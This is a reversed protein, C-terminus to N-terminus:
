AHPSEESSEKSSRRDSPKKSPPKKPPPKMLQLIREAIREMAREDGLREAAVRFTELQRQRESGGTLLPLAAEALREPRVDGQYLEPCVGDDALLNPLASYKASSLLRAAAYSVASLRYAAAFPTELLAAELTVTGSKALAADAARLLEWSRGRLVPVEPPFRRLLPKPLSRPVAAACQLGPVRERLLRAAGIMAGGLSELEKVRSGPLLALLPADPEVGVRRKAEAQPIAKTEALEGVLPHGAYFTEAGAQAYFDAAFPLVCVVLAAARAYRKARGPRWAWAKPPILAVAPTGLRSAFEALGIHFEPFDIVVAASPRREALARKLVRRKQFFEPLQRVAETLGMVSSSGIEVTLEAGAAKMREGGMGFARAGPSLARMRELLAAGYLDGSPEGASIFLLEPPGNM